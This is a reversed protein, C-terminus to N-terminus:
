TFYYSMIPLEDKKPDVRDESKEFVNLYYKGNEMFDNDNVHLVSAKNGSRYSYDPASWVTILRWDPTFDTNGFYKQYGDMALQHSRCVMRLRNIRNFATCQDRGFLFGAGRSNHIYTKVREDPDSWCLDAFPGDNPIENQRDILSIREILPLSPSIGGHVCFIDADVLAALPLLDFADNCMTWLGSHGYNAMIENYFGYSHSIQRSEHNGRLLSVDYPHEIKLTVLYLFTNLSHYGRDVYDGMFLYKKNTWQQNEDMGKSVKFLKVLDFLQGHIDGCIIIPSSLLLVNNERNLIDILKLLLRTVKDENIVECKYISERIESLNLDSESM